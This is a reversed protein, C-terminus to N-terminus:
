AANERERWQASILVLSVLAFGALAAATSVTVLASAVAFGALGMWQRRRVMAIVGRHLEPHVLRHRHTAYAWNLVLFGLSAILTAGFALVAAPEEAFAGVLGAGVPVLSVCLLFGLKIWIHLRNSSVLHRAESFHGVWLHGLSIFGVVFGILRSMLEHLLERNLAPAHPLSELMPLVLFTFAIAFIGDSLAELRHKAALGHDSSRVAPETSM